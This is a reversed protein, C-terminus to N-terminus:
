TGAKWGCNPCQIPGPATERSVGVEAAVKEWDKSHALIRPTLVGRADTLVVGLDTVVLVRDIRLEDGCRWAVWDGPRILADNM